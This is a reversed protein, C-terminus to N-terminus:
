TKQSKLRLQDNSSLVQLMNLLGAQDASAAQKELSDASVSAQLVHLLCIHEKSAVGATCPASHSHGPQM